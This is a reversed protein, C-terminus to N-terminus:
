RNLEKKAISLLKDCVDTLDKEFDWGSNCTIIADKVAQEFESLENTRVFLHESLGDYGSDTYTEIACGNPDEEMYSAVAIPYDGPLDWALVRCIFADNKLCVSYKGSEIEPRYKVDFPIKKM